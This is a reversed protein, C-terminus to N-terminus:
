HGQSSIIGTREQQRAYHDLRAQYVSARGPSLDAAKKYSALATEPQGLALQVDALAEFAAPSKPAITVARQALPLAEAAHGTAALDEAAATQAPAADPACHLAKSQHRLCGAVDGEEALMRALRRQPRPDNPVKLIATVLDQETQAWKQRSQYEKQWQRQPGTQGLRFYAQSLALAPVADYPSRRAAQLLFPLGDSGQGQAALAQGLTM